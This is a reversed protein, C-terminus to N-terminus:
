IDRRDSSGGVFAGLVNEAGVSTRHFLERLIVFITTWLFLAMLVHARSPCM